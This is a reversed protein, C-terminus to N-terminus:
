MDRRVAASVLMRPMLRMSACVSPVCRPVSASMKLDVDSCSDAHGPM